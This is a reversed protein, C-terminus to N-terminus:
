CIISIYTLKKRIVKYVRSLLLKIVKLAIGILFFNFKKYNKNIFFNQSISNIIKNFEEIKNSTLSNNARTITLLIKPHYIFSNKYKAFAVLWYALDERINPDINFKYKGLVKKEIISSSLLFPNYIYLWFFGHKSIMHLFFKQLLIRTLNIIFNSDKNSNEKVYSAAAFSFKFNSIQTMQYTLKNPRWFDDSDLFTLYEGKSKIIGLNRSFGAGEKKKNKIVIVRSDKQSFSEIINLSNDTSCDDIIFYEFDTFSQSIVSKISQEIYKENNYNATVISIKPM